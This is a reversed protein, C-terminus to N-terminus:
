QGEYKRFKKHGNEEYLELIEHREGQLISILYDLQQTLKDVQNQLQAITQDRKKLEDELRSISRM